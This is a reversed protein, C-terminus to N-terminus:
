YKVLTGRKGVITELQQGVFELLGPYKPGTDILTIPGKGVAYLNATLLQTNEPLPISIAHINKLKPFPKIPM